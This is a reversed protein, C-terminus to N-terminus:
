DRRRSGGTRGKGRCASAHPPDLGQSCGAGSPVIRHLGDNEEGRLSGSCGLAPLQRRSQRPSGLAIDGPSIRCPGRRSPPRGSPRAHDDGIAAKRERSSGVDARWGHRRDKIVPADHRDPAIGALCEGPRGLCNAMPVCPQAPVAPLPALCQQRQDATPRCGASGARRRQRRARSSSLGRRCFSAPTTPGWCCGAESLVRYPRKRRGPRAARCPSHQRSFPRGRTCSCPSPRGNAEALSAPCQKSGGLGMSARHHRPRSGAASHHM